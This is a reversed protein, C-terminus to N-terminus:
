MVELRIATLNIDSLFALALGLVSFKVITFIDLYSNCPYPCRRVVHWGLLQVTIDAYKKMQLIPRVNHM